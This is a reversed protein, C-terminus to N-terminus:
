RGGRGRRRRGLVGNDGPQALAGADMAGGAAVAAGLALALAIADVVVEEAAFLELPLDGAVVEDLVGIDVAVVLTEFPAFECARKGFPLVDEDTGVQVAGAGEAPEEAPGDEHEEGGLAAVGQAGAKDGTLGLTGLGKGAAEGLDVGFEAVGGVVVVDDLVAFAAEVVSDIFKHANDLALRIM